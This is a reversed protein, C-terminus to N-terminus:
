AKSSFVQRTKASPQCNRSTVALYPVARSGCHCCSVSGVLLVLGEALFLPTFSRSRYFLRYIQVWEARWGAKESGWWAAAGSGGISLLANILTTIAKRERRSEAEVDQSDMPPVYAGFKREPSTTTGALLSVMSYAAPDLLPSCSVLHARGSSSRSWQSIAQLLSYPITLPKPDSLYVELNKATSEPLLPLLPRLAEVLHSELSINLEPTGTKSM